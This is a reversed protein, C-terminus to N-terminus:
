RSRRNSDYSDRIKLISSSRSIHFQFSGLYLITFNSEFSLDFIERTEMTIECFPINYNLLSVELEDTVNNVGIVVVRGIEVMRLDYDSYLPESALIEDLGDGDIDMAVM